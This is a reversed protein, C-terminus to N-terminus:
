TQVDEHGKLEPACPGLAKSSNREYPLRKIGSSKVYFPEAWNVGPKVTQGPKNPCQRVFDPARSMQLSSTPAKVDTASAPFQSQLFIEPCVPM